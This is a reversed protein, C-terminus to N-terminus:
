DTKSRLIATKSSDIRAEDFRVCVTQLKMRIRSCTTTKIKLALKVNYRREAEFIQITLEKKQLIKIKTLIRFFFCSINEEETLLSADNFEKHLVIRRMHTM